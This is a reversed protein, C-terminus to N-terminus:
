PSVSLREARAETGPTRKPRSRANSTTTAPDVGAARWAPVLCALMASALMVTPVAVFTVPDTAGVEYLLSSMFRTVMFAGVLGAVLGLLVVRLGRGMVM